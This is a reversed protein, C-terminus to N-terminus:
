PIDEALPSTTAFEIPLWIVLAALVTATTLPNAMQLTQQMQCWYLWYCTIPYTTWWNSFDLLCIHKPQLSWWVLCVCNQLKSLGKDWCTIHVTGRPPLIRVYHEDCIIRWPKWQHEGCDESTLAMHHLSNGTAEKVQWFTRYSQMRHHQKFFRTSKMFNM